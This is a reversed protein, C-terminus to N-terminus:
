REANRDFAKRCRPDAGDFIVEWASAQLLDVDHIASIDKGLYSLLASAIPERHSVIIVIGNERSATWESIAQRMRESMAELSEMGGTQLPTDYYGSEAVFEKTQHGTWKGQDWEMVRDDTQVDAKLVDSFIKASEQARLLPSSVIVSPHIGAREMDGALATIQRRGRDSLPFGPLRGYEIGQPNDVAGHRVLYVTTM